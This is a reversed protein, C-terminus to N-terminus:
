ASKPIQELTVVDIDELGLPTNGHSDYYMRKEPDILINFAKDVKEWRDVATSDNPLNQPCHKSALTKRARGLILIICKLLSQLHSM